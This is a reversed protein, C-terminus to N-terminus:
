QLHTIRWEHLRFNQSKGVEESKYVLHRNWDQYSAYFGRVTHIHQVRALLCGHVEGTGVGVSLQLHAQESDLIVLPEQFVLFRQIGDSMTVRLFDSPIALNILKQPRASEETVVRILELNIQRLVGRGCLSHFDAAVNLHQLARSILDNSVGLEQLFIHRAPVVHWVVQGHPDCNGVIAFKKFFVVTDNLSRNQRVKQHQVVEIPWHRDSLPVLVFNLDISFCEHNRSFALRIYALILTLQWTRQRDNDALVCLWAVFLLSLTLNYLDSEVVLLLQNVTDIVWLFVVRM